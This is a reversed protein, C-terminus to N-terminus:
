HRNPGMTAEIAGDPGPITQPVQYKQFILVIKSGQLTHHNETDVLIKFYLIDM